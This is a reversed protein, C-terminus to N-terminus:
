NNGGTIPANFLGSSLILGTTADIVVNYEGNTPPPCAGVPPCPTRYTGKIGVVWVMRDSGVNMAAVRAGLEASAAAVSEMKAEFVQPTPGTAGGADIGLAVSEAKAKSIFPGSVYHLQQSSPISHTPPTPAPAGPYLNGASAPQASRVLIGVGLAVVVVAAAVVTLIATRKSLTGSRGFKM